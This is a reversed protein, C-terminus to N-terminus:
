CRPPGTASRVPQDARLPLRAAPAPALGPTVTSAALRARLDPRQPRAPARLARSAAPALLARLASLGAPEPGPLAAADAVVGDLTRLLLPLSAREIERDRERDRDYDSGRDRDADQAEREPPDARERLDEREGAADRAAAPERRLRLRLATAVRVSFFCRDFLQFYELRAKAAEAREAEAAFVLGLRYACQSLELLM